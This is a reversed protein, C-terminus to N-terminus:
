NAEPLDFEAGIRFLHQKLMECHRVVCPVAVLTGGRTPLMLQFRFDRAFAEHHTIRVGGRSIDQLVVERTGADSNPDSVLTVHRRVAVRVARRVELPDPTSEFFSLVDLLQEHSLAV